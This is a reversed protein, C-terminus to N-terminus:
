ESEKTIIELEAIIMDIEEETMEVNILAVLSKALRLFMLLRRPSKYHFFLTREQESLLGLEFYNLKGSSSCEVCMEDDYELDLSQQNVGDTSSLLYKIYSGYERWMISGCDLCICARVM